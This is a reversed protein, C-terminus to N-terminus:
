PAWELTDLLADWRPDDHLSNFFPEFVFEDMRWVGVQRTRDIWEFAQDAEGRSAHALAMLFRVRRAPYDVLRALAADSEDQRGMAHCIVTLLFEKSYSEPLSEAIELAEEYQQRMFFIQALSDRYNSEPSLELAKLTAEEAQDLQGLQFLYIGLNGHQIASLPDLSIAKRMLEIAEDTRGNRWSVFIAFSYIALPNNPDLQLAQQFERTAAQQDYDRIYAMGMRVHAESSGPDLSLAKKAAERAAVLGSDRPMRGDLAQVAIAVSLGTWAPAYSPDIDLARQYFEMAKEEDGPARRNWVYRAQLILAYAEPDVRRTKPTAGLLRIKLMEVVSAAIEDQMQFVDEMAHDYTESWLHTDSRGDILQVTIRLQNGARRVSGELV